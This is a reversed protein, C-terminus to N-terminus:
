ERNDHEHVGEDFALSEVNELEGSAGTTSLEEDTEAADLATEDDRDVAQTPTKRLVSLVMLVGVILRVGHEHVDDVLQMFDGEHPVRIFDSRAKALVCEQVVRCLARDLQDLTQVTELVRLLDRLLVPNYRGLLRLARGFSLTGEEQELVKRLPHHQSSNMMATIKRVEHLSYPRKEQRGLWCYRPAGDQLHRMWAGIHRTSLVEILHQREDRSNTETSSLQASWRLLMDRGVAEEVRGLWACDLFSKDLGISQQLGQTQLTQYALGRWSVRPPFSQTFLTLWLEIAAHNPPCNTSFLLPLATNKDIVLTTALPVYLNVLRGSVRQARLFRSVGIFALLTAYRAGHLALNIKRSVEGDSTPSRLSYGLAPDITMLVRIERKGGPKGPLPIAPHACDYDGLVEGVWASARPREREVSDKWEEVAKAAKILGVPETSASLRRKSLVDSVSLIREGKTFLAALVGDLVEVQISPLSNEQANAQFSHPEPLALVQDLIEAGASPTTQTPCSIRYALSEDRVSTPLNSAYTLLIALGYAHLTDFLEFGTKAVCWHM